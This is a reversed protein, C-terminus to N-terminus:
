FWPLWVESMKVLNYPNTSQAILNTVSQVPSPGPPPAATGAVQQQREITCAAM